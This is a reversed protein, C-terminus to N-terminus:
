AGVGSWWAPAQLDDDGAPAMRELHLGVPGVFLVLSGRSEADPDSERHLQVGLGRTTLDVGAGITWDDGLWVSGTEAFGAFGDLLDVAGRILPALVSAIAIKTTLNM